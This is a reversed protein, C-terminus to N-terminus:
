PTLAACVLKRCVLKVVM